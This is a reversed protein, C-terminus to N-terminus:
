WKGNRVEELEKCEEIGRHKYYKEETTGKEERDKKLQM